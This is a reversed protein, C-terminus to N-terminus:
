QQTLPLVVEIGGAVETIDVTQKAVERSPVLVLNMPAGDQMNARLVKSSTRTDPGRVSWGLSYCYGLSTRQGEVDLFVEFAVPRPLETGQFHFLLSRDPLVSTRVTNAVQRLTAEDQIVTVTPTGRVVVEVPAEVTVSWDPNLGEAILFERDPLLTGVTQCSIRLRARLTYRGPAMEVAAFPCPSQSQWSTCWTKGFGGSSGGRWGSPPEIRLDGLTVSEFELKISQGPAWSPPYRTSSSGVGRWESFVDFPLPDGSAIKPRARLQFALMGELFAQRQSATVAGVSDAAEFVDGWAGWPKDLQSQRSLSIEALDRVKGKSLEGATIRRILEGQASKADTSDGRQASSRLVWYPQMMVANPGAAQLRVLWGVLTWGFLAVAVGAWMAVPRRERRARIVAGARRINAGCEPCAAKAIHGEAAARLSGSLDFNCAACLECGDIRRGRWGWRWLATGLVILIVAAISM